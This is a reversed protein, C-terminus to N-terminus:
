GGGVNRYKDPREELKAKKADRRKQAAASKTAAAMNAKKNKV